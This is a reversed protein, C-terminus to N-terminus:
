KTKRDPPRSTLLDSPRFTSPRFTPLGSPPLACCWVELRAASCIWGTKCGKARAEARATIRRSAELGRLGGPVSIRWMGTRAASQLSFSFPVSVGRSPSKPTPIGESFASKPSEFPDLRILDAECSHAGSVFRGSDTQLLRIRVRLGSPPAVEGRLWEQVSCRPGRGTPHNWASLWSPTFWSCYPCLKRCRSGSDPGNTEGDAISEPAACVCSGRGSLRAICGASGTHSRM